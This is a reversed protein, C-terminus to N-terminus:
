CPLWDKESTRRVPSVSTAHLCGNSGMGEHRARVCPLLCCPTSRSRMSRPRRAPRQPEPGRCAVRVHVDRPLFTAPGSLLIGPHPPLPPICLSACVCITCSKSEPSRSPRRVKHEPGAINFGFAVRVILKRQCSPPTQHVSCCLPISQISCQTSPPKETGVAHTPDALDPGDPRPTHTHTHSM